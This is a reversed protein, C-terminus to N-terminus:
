GLQLSTLRMPVTVFRYVLLFSSLSFRFDWFGSDSTTYHINQMSVGNGRNNGTRSRNTECLYESDIRAFRVSGCTMAPM